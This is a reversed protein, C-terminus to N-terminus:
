KLFGFTLASFSIEAGGADLNKLTIKNCYKDNNNNNNVLYNSKRPFSKYVCIAPESNQYPQNRSIDRDDTRLQQHGVKLKM